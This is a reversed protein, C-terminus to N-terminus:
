VFFNRGSEYPHVLLNIFLEYPNTPLLCHPFYALLCSCLLFCAPLLVILLCSLMQWHMRRDTQLKRQAIVEATIKGEDGDTM